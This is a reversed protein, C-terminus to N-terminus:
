LPVEDATIPRQNTYYILAVVQAPDRQVSEVFSDVGNVKITEGPKCTAYVADVRVAGGVQTRNGAQEMPAVDSGTDLLGSVSVGGIIVTVTASPFVRRLEALGAQLISQTTM